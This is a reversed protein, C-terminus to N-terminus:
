MNAKQQIRQKKRAEEKKKNDRDGKKHGRQKQNRYIQNKRLIRKKARKNTKKM